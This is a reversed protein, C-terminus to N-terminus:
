ALAHMSRERQDQSMSSFSRLQGTLLLMVFSSDLLRLFLRLESAQRDSLAGGVIVQALADALGVDSAGTRFLIADDAPGPELRPAFTDAVAALVRRERASLAAASM